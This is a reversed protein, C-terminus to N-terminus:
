ARVRGRVELEREIQELSKGKTEPLYKLIFVFGAACIGAYLWFTAAVGLAGQLFPFTYILVFCALWMASVAIAVAQGRIRNPFIESILVWTIPALSFAYCAMAGLVPIVVVVGSLGLRYCLGILTHFVGIGACGILMIARRGFRDVTLIAVFTFLLLVVGTICINFLVSGVGYGAARFVEESYSLIVNIGCWQQLVALTVGILLATRIGPSLLSRSSLRERGALALTTQIEALEGDAYMPGGVRALIGRAEERRGVKMLWRPSEPVFLAGALFVVAPAAVATFMWRWGFEGNWSRRIMEASAYEPMPRAIIWNVVQAGLVGLVITLQNISVMRGRLSAPTVEAIYMPSISSALGIAVGGLIRWTVFSHFSGAWGTLVSSVAFLFAALLLLRKRGFRDSFTGSTLAGALCGVVACSNAWGRLTESTLSFHAEFFPKAGGIVVWDYGFLLGGMAAILSIRWLYLLDFSGDTAAAHPEHATMRHITVPVTDSPAM